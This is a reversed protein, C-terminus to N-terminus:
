YKEFIRRNKFTFDKPQTRLRFSVREYLFIPSDCDKKSM